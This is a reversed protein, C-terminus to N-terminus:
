TARTLLGWQHLLFDKDMCFSAAYRLYLVLRFGAVDTVVVGCVEDVSVGDSLRSFVRVTEVNHCM